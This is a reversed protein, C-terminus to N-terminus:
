RKGMGKIKNEYEKIKQQQLSIQQFQIDCTSQYNEAVRKYELVRDTLNSLHGEKLENNFDSIRLREAIENKSRTLMMVWGALFVLCGVLALFIFIPIQLM